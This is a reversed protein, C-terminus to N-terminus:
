ERITVVLRLRDRLRVARDARRVEKEEVLRPPQDVPALQVVTPGAVALRDCAAVEAGREVGEEGALGRGGVLAGADAAVDFPFGGLLPDQGRMAWHLKANRRRLGPVRSYAGRQMQAGM